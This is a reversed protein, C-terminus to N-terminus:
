VEFAHRPIFVGYFRTNAEDLWESVVTKINTIVCASTRSRFSSHLDGTAECSLCLAHVTMPSIHSDPQRAGIDPHLVHVLIYDAHMLDNSNLHLSDASSLITGVHAIVTSSMAQHVYRMHSFLAQQVKDGLDAQM